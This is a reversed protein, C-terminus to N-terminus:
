SGRGRPCFLRRAQEWRKRTRLLAEFTGFGSWKGSWFIKSKRHSETQNRGHKGVCRKKFEKARQSPHWMEVGLKRDPTLSSVMSTNSHILVQTKNLFMPVSKQIRHKIGM